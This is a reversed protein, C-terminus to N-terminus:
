AGQDYRLIQYSAAEEAHIKEFLQKPRPTDVQQNTDNLRSTGPEPNAKARDRPEAEHVLM